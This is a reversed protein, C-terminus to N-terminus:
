SKFFFLFIFAEENKQTGSAASDIDISLDRAATLRHGDFCSDTMRGEHLQSAVM